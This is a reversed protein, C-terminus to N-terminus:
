GKAATSTKGSGATSQGLDLGLANAFQQGFDTGGKQLGVDHAHQMAQLVWGFDGQTQPALGLQDAVNPQVVGALESAGPVQTQGPTTVGAAPKAESKKGKATDTPAAVDAPKTQGAGTVRAIIDQLWGFPKQQTEMQSVALSQAPSM